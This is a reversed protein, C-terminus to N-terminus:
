NKTSENPLRCEDIPIVLGEFKSGEKGVFVLTGSVFNFNTKDVQLSKCILNKGHNFAFLLKEHLGRKRDQLLTYGFVLLWGLLLSLLITMKLRQTLETFFYVVVGVIGFLLLLFILLYFFAM